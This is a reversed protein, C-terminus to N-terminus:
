PRVQMRGCITCARCDEGTPSNVYSGHPSCRVPDIYKGEGCKNCQLCKAPLGPERYRRPFRQRLLVSCNLTAVLPELLNFCSNPSHWCRLGGTANATAPTGTSVLSARPASLASSTPTLFRRGPYTSARM